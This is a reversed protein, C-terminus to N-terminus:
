FAGALAGGDVPYVAGTMFSSADSALLLAIGQIEQRQGMRKLLVTESWAKEVGPDIPGRGGINTHFPGPAIGNVRIGDVALDVAAQRVLNALAGKSASYGYGVMSDARLGATSVTVVISGRGAPRMARAAARVTALTGILNVALAGDFTPWELDYLRGEATDIGPGGAIGANAFVADLRGQEAASGAVAAEVTAPDTVDCTCVSVPGTAALSAATRELEDGDRDLLTVAAGCQLLGEAIALGLGSAAGTVLAHRGDMALREPLSRRVTEPADTM